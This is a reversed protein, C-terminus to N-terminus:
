YYWQPKIVAPRRLSPAHRAMVAEVESQISSNVVAISDILTWSCCQYILFEAQKRRQRDMDDVTDNWRNAYVTTWDVNGLDAINAYWSTYNALGHGDSFIFQCDAGAVMQVSSLLYVLPDQRQTYGAVRGTHLRLLMPSRPGFYFPVYDHVTGGPGVAIPHLHRKAQVETDHITRYTLGDQPTQHPAHLAQRHLLVDLNDIHVIRFILTPVPAPM